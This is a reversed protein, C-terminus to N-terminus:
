KKKEAWYEEFDEIESEKFYDNLNKAYYSFTGDENKYVLEVRFQREDAKIIVLQGVAFKAGDKPELKTKEEKKVEKKPTSIEKVQVGGSRLADNINYLNRSINILVKGTAWFLAASLALVAAGLIGWLYASEFEATAAVICAIAGVIAVFVSIAFVAQNFKNLINEAVPNVEYPSENKM